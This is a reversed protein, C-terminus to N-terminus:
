LSAAKRSRTRQYEAPSPLRPNPATNEAVTTVVLEPHLSAAILTADEKSDALVEVIGAFAGGRDPRRLVCGYRQV